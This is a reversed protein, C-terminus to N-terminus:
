SRSVPLSSKSIVFWSSQKGRKHEVRIDVQELAPAVRNIMKTLWGASKPWDKNVQVEDPVHVSLVALLESPSGRWEDRSQMMLLIAAVLPDGGAQALVATWQEPSIGEGQDDESDEDYYGEQEEQNIESEDRGEPGVSVLGSDEGDSRRGAAEQVATMAPEVAEVQMAQGAGAAAKEQGARWAALEEPDVQSLIKHRIQEKEEDTLPPKHWERRLSQAAEIREKIRILAQELSIRPKVEQVPAAMASVRALAIEAPSPPEAAVPPQGGAPEADPQVEGVEQQEPGAAEPVVPKDEAEPAVAEEAHPPEPEAPQVEVVPRPGDQMMEASEERHAQDSQPPAEVLVPDAVEQVRGAAAGAPEDDELAAPPLAPVGCRKGTTTAEGPQPPQGEGAAPPKVPGTRPPGSKGWVRDIYVAKAQMIACYFATLHKDFEEPTAALKAPDVDHVPLVGTLNKVEEPPVAQVLFYRSWDKILFKDQKTQKYIERLYKQVQETAIERHITLLAKQEMARRYSMEKMLRHLVRGIYFAVAIHILVVWLWGLLMLLLVGLHFTFWITHSFTELLVLKMFFPIEEFLSYYPWLIFIRDLYIIVLPVWLYHYKKLLRWVKQKKTEYPTIPM